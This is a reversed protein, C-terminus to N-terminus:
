QSMACFHKALNIIKLINTQNSHWIIEGVLSWDDDFDFHIFESNFDSYKEQNLCFSNAQSVKSDIPFIQNM